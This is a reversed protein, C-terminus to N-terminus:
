TLPGQGLIQSVWLSENGANRVLMDYNKCPLLSAEGVCSVNSSFYLAPSKNQQKEQTSYALLDPTGRSNFISITNLLGLV